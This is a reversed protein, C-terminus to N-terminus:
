LYRKYFTKDVWRKSLTVHPERKRLNNEAMSYVLSVSPRFGIRKLIDCNWLM